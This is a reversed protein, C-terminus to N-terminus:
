HFIVKWKKEQKDADRGCVGLRRIKLLVEHPKPNQPYGKEIKILVGPEQLVIAQM